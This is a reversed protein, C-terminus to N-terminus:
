SQPKGYRATYYGPRPAPKPQETLPTGHQKLLDVLRELGPERNWVKEVQGENYTVELHSTGDKAAPNKFYGDRALELFIGTLESKPMDLVLCEGDPNAVPAPPPGVTMSFLGGGRSNANSFGALPTTRPDANTAKSGPSLTRLTVHVFEEHLGPYPYQVELRVRKSPPPSSPATESHSAQQVTASPSVAVLGGVSNVDYVINLQQFDAAGTETLHIRENTSACGPAFLGVLLSFVGWNALTRRVAERGHRKLRFLEFDRFGDLRRCNAKDVIRSVRNFTGGVAM